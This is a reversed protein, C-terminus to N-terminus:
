GPPAEAPRRHERLDVGASRLMRYVHTRYTHLDRAVASINGRHIRLLRVLDERTAAAGGEATRGTGPFRSLSEGEPGLVRGLRRRVERPAVQSHWLAALQDVWHALQRVNGPWGYARLRAEMGDALLEELAAPPVHRRAAFHRLLPLLDEPRERLPPLRIEAGALRFFLDQRFRGRAVERRLSRLSAAVIRVSAREIRDSGVARVEGTDLFRLLAAQASPHLDAVEDLFLTGGEAQAILGPRDRHAGTFAGKRHGFLEAELLENRATAANFGVLRGARGSMEHLAAAVLEKGSGTEGHILVPLESKAVCSLHLMEAHVDPSRTIIGFCSWCEPGAKRREWDWAPRSAGRAEDAKPRPAHAGGPRALPARSRILAPGAGVLDLRERPIGARLIRAGARSLLRQAAGRTEKKSPDACIAKALAIESLGQEVRDGLRLSMELSRQLTEAAEEWRGETLLIEGLLRHASVVSDDGTGGARLASARALLDRVSDEAVGIDGRALLRLAESWSIGAALGPAQIGSQEIRKLLRRARSLLRAIRADRAPHASSGAQIHVAVMALLARILEAPWGHERAGRLAQVADKRALDTSGLLLRVTCLYLALQVEIRPCGLSAADRRLRLLRREAQGLFGQRIWLRAIAVRTELSARLFGHHAQIQDAIQLHDLAETLRGREVELRGLARFAAGELAAMTEGQAACRRAWAIAARLWAEACGWERLRVAAEGGCLYLRALLVGTRADHTEGAKSGPTDWPKGGPKGGPEADAEAEMGAASRVEAATDPGVAEIRVLHDIVAHDRGQVASHIMELWVIHLRVVRGPQVLSRYTRLVDLNREVEQMSSDHIPRAANQMGISAPSYLGDDGSRHEVEELNERIRLLLITTRLICHEVARNRDVPAERRIQRRLRESERWALSLSGAALAREIVVQRGIWPVSAEARM